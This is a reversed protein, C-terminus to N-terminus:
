AAGVRHLPIFPLPSFARLACQEDRCFGEPECGHCFADIAQQRVDKAPDGRVGKHYDRQCRLSCYLRRSNTRRFTRPCVLCRYVRAVRVVERLMPDGFYEALHDARELSPIYRGQRWYGVMTPSVGLAKGLRANTLGHERMHAVFRARFRQHEALRKPTLRPISV